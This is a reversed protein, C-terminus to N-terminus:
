WARVGRYVAWDVNGSCRGAIREGNSDLFNQRPDILTGGVYPGVRVRGSGKAGIRLMLGPDTRNSLSSDQPIASQRQGISGHDSDDGSGWFALAKSRPLRRSPQFSSGILQPLNGVVMLFRGGSRLSARARSFPANGVNDMIVDYTVGNRSFRGQHESDCSSEGEGRSLMLFSTRSNM